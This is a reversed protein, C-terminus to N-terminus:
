KHSITTEKTNSFETCQFDQALTSHDTASSDSTRTLDRLKHDRIKTLISLRGNRTPEVMNRGSSLLKDKKIREKTSMLYRRTRGTSSSTEM